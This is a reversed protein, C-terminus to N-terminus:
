KRPRSGSTPRAPSPRRVVETTFVIELVLREGAVLDANRKEPQWGELEVELEYHGAPLTLETPTPQQKGALRLIGGDPRTRVELIATARTPATPGGGPAAHIATDSAADPPVPAPADPAAATAADRPAMATLALDHTAVGAPSQGRVALAILFSLVALGILGGLAVARGSASRVPATPAHPDPPPIGALAPVGALPSGRMAPPPPSELLTSAVGSGAPRQGARPDFLTPAAPVGPLPPRGELLTPAAPVGPLPPRGDLLTPAAPGPPSQVPHRDFVTPAASPSPVPAPRAVLTSTAAPGGLVLPRFASGRLVTEANELSAESGRGTPEGAAADDLAGAPGGRDAPEDPAGPEAAAHEFPLPQPPDTPEFAARDPALVTAADEVAHAAIM